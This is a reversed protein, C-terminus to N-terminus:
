TIGVEIGEVSLHELVSDYQSEKLSSYEANSEAQEIHQRSREVVKPSHMSLTKEENSFGNQPRRLPGRKKSM